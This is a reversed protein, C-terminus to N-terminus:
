KSEQEPPTHKWIFGKYTKHVGNMACSIGNPIGNYFVAAERRSKWKRLFNGHIDYQYVPKVCPNEDYSKGKTPSEPKLGMAVAHFHNERRTVWELNSVVNNSKNADIHNVESKGEPNPIFAKAVLIHIYESKYKYGTGNRFLLLRVYGDKRPRQKMVLGNSNRVRGLNSVEYLGNYGDIPKWMEDM